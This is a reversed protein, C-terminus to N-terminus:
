LPLESTQERPGVPGSTTAPAEATSAALQDARRNSWTLGGWVLWGVPLFAWFSVIRYLIVAAVTSVQGGGYAVLAIMLSGEVVGLGGPTIPLNAALQGAGYALLLGRWPVGAGVALFALVLCLCDLVWNTISWALVGVIDRAGLDFDSLSSTLSGGAKDGRRRPFGTIRRSARLVWDFCRMLLQKQYLLATAGVALALIGLTVGVLDFASGQRQAVVVGATALLALGLASFVLTALLAWVALAESAGLRRFQRFGFASSVVPGAPLSSAIAGAAFSIATLRGASAHVGGCRLLRQGMLAFAVLSLVEVVIALILWGTNLHSLEASAGALEGTRGSVAWLALCGLAIGVVFRASLWIWRRRSANTPIESSRTSV